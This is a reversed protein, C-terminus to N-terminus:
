RKFVAQSQHVLVGNEVEEDHVLTFSEPPHERDAVDQSHHSRVLLGPSVQQLRKYEWLSLREGPAVLYSRSKEFAGEFRSTGLLSFTKRQLSINKSKLNKSSGLPDQTLVVVAQGAEM